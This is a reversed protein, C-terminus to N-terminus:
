LMPSQTDVIAGEVTFVRRYSHEKAPPNVFPVINHRYRYGHASAEGTSLEKCRYRKIVPCLLGQSLLKAYYM